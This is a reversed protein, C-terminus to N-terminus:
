DRIILLKNLVFPITPLLLIHQMSIHLMPLILYVEGFSILLEDVIERRPHLHIIVTDSFIM